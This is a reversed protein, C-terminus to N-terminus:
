SCADYHNHPCSSSSPLEISFGQSSSLLNLHVPAKSNLDDEEVNCQKGQRYWCNGQADNFRVAWEDSGGSGVNIIFTVSQGNEMTPPVNTALDTYGKWQHSASLGFITGGTQNTVVCKMTGYWNM